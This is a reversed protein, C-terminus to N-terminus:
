QPIILEVDSDSSPITILIDQSFRCVSNYEYSRVKWNSSDVSLQCNFNSDTLAFSYPYDSGYKGESPIGDMFLLPSNRERMLPTSNNLGSEFM